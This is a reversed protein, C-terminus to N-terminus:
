SANRVETLGDDRQRRQGEMALMLLNQEGNAAYVVSPGLNDGREHDAFTLSAESVYRNCESRDVCHLLMGLCRAGGAQLRRMCEELRTRSRGRRISLVVGDAATTVPTSELSGLLPGTDVIIMEFRDRAFEFLEKLDRHRLTAPGFRSDAGVPLVSLNDVPLETVVDDTEHHFLAEKLGPHGVLGLQRTLSRGVMDCDVLLTRYGAVAYSWGIAMAISTKGDGQFPSTVALAFGRDPDRLVEIQNRIQHVCHSAVDSTEPDDLGRGLDPLV